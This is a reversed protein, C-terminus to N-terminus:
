RKLFAGSAISVTIFLRGAYGFLTKCFMETLVNAKRRGQGPYLGLGSRYGSTSFLAGTAVVFFCCVSLTFLAFLM